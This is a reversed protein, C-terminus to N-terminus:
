HKDFLSKGPTEPDFNENVGDKATVAVISYDTPPLNPVSLINALIQPKVDPLM